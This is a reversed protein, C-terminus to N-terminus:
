DQVAGRITGTQVGQAFASAAFSSLLMALVVVSWGNFLGTFRNRM